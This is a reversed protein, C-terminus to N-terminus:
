GKKSQIQSQQSVEYSFSISIDSNLKIINNKNKNNNLGTKKETKKRIKDSLRDMMKQLSIPNDLLFKKEKKDLGYLYEMIFKRNKNMFKANKEDRLSRFMLDLSNVDDSDDNFTLSKKESTRKRLTATTITKRMTSSNNNNSSSNFLGKSELNNKRRSNRGKKLNINQNNKYNNKIGNKFSNNDDEDFSLLVEGEEEDNNAPTKIKYKMYKYDLNEPSIDKKSDVLIIYRTLNMTELQDLDMRQSNTLCDRFPTTFIIPLDDRKQSYEPQSDNLIKLQFLSLNCIFIFFKELEKFNTYDMLPQQKINQFITNRKKYIYNFSNEEMNEKSLENEIRELLLFIANFEKENLDMRTETNEVIKPKVRINQYTKLSKFNKNIGLRKRRQNNKAEFDDKITNSKLILNIQEFAARFNKKNMEIQCLLLDIELNIKRKIQDLLLPLQLEYKKSGLVVSSAKKNQNNLNEKIYKSLNLTKDHLKSIRKNYIKLCFLSNKEESLYSYGSLDNLFEKEDDKSNLNYQIIDSILEKASHLCNISEKYKDDVFYFYGCNFNSKMMLILENNNKERYNDAYLDLCHQLLKTSIDLPYYNYFHFISSDFLLSTYLYLRNYKIENISDISNGSKIERYNLSYIAKLYIIFFLNQLNTKCFRGSFKIACSLLNILMKAIAPTVKKMSAASKKCYTSLKNYMYEFKKKNEKCMLLFIEFAKDEKNLKLYLYIILYFNCLNEKVKLCFEYVKQPVDFFFASGSTMKIFEENIKTQSKLLFQSIFYEDELINIKGLIIKKRSEYFLGLPENKFDIEPTKSFFGTGGGFISSNKSPKPSPNPENSINSRSTKESIIKKTLSKHFFSM